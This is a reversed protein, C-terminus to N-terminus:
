NPPFSATPPKGTTATPPLAPPPLPEPVVPVPPKPAVPVPPKAAVPEPKAPEPKAPEPKAPEPKAPEPKAPEPEAKPAEAALSPEPEASPAATPPAAPEIAPEVKPEPQKVLVPPSTVVDTSPIADAQAQQSARYAAFLAIALGFGTILAVYRVFKARRAEQEPTVSHRPNVEILEHHEEPPPVKAPGGEYKGEDGEAFFRMHGHWSDDASKSKDRKSKDGASKSKDDASKSKEDASKSTEDAAAPGVDRSEAKTPAEALASAAIAARAEAEASPLTTADRGQAAPTERATERATEPAEQKRNKKKAGARKKGVDDEQGSDPLADTTAASASANAEEDKRAPFPIVKAPAAAATRAEPTERATPAPSATAASAAISATAAARAEPTERATPAPSAAAASAAIAVAARAEPSDPLTTKPGADQSPGLGMQTSSLSTPPGGRTEPVRSVPLDVPPVVVRVPGSDRTAAARDAPELGPLTKPGLGRVSVDPAPPRVSPAANHEGGPSDGVILEGSARPLPFAEGDASPVVDDSGDDSRPAAAVLLGEFFLKTVTSLTSLDEFPSDDVVELLTRRGDFLRLIGNLEDPIEALREVLQDQDIEFLTTLPPLQELLRGWEDVRRMGEMLLGQTTTPVVDECAVAKFEVEFSGTTWILARYVAEEGRLRGLRADVVKGDRFYIVAEARGTTIRAEGSKRSVEFTQIIDVLGMDTLAGSLRTRAGAPTSTAMREQTRRALLLNVRATLERVFIPKTLYDEVGLELGRIKDEISKQSTLFVVPIQSLDPNQKLRRVLEYGDLTPLRTDTLILDPTSYEIKALADGGDSATTVSYGAKKLSVELVRVSRPDADVLLLQRKAM